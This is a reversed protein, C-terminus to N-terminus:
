NFSNQTVLIGSQPTKLDTELLLLLHPFCLHIVLVQYSVMTDHQSNMVDKENAQQIKVPTKNAYYLRGRLLWAMASCTNKYQIRIPNYQIRAKSFWCDLWKKLHPELYM